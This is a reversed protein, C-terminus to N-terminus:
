PVTCAACAAQLGQDYHVPIQEPIVQISFFPRPTPGPFNFDPEDVGWPELQVPWGGSLFSKLYSDILDRTMLPLFPSATLPNAQFQLRANAAIDIDWDGSFGTPPTSSEWYLNAYTPSEIQARASTSMLVVLGACIWSSRILRTMKGEKPRAENRDWGATWDM